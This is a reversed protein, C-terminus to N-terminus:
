IVRENSLLRALRPIRLTMNTEVELPSTLNNCALIVWYLLPTGYLEHAIIDPRFRKSADVFYFQDTADPELYLQSKRIFEIVSIGSITSLNIKNKYRSLTSSSHKPSDATSIYSSYWVEMGSPEQISQYQNNM